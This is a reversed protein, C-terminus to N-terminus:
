RGLLSPWNVIVDIPPAATEGESVLLLFRRADASVQWWDTDNVYWPQVPADFLRTAAGSSFTPQLSVPVAMLAQGAFYFLEKGDASWRPESGGGASILWKGGAPNPFTQVYVQPDGNDTSTYAVFRGDPSFAAQADRAPGTLYPVPRRESGGDAPIVWLDLDTDGALGGKPLTYIIWHGDRSWDNAFTNGEARIAVREQGTGDALREFVSVAGERASSVLLRLGDPSWVPSDGSAVNLRRAPGTV